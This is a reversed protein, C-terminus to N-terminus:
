KNYVNYVNYVYRLYYLSIILFITIFDGSFALFRLCCSRLAFGIVSFHLLFQGFVCIVYIRLSCTDM